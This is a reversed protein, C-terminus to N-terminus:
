KQVRIDILSDSTINAEQFTGMHNMMEMAADIIHFALACGTGEGLRMKLNLIPELGLEKMIFEYGPEASAHSPILYAKVQPNIKYAILAAAASIFGDIVIPIRYFGAGLFCGTLGAIDLGGVKSLIDLPDKSNPKNIDLARQIVQKKHAFSAETLGAGKGVALDCSCGTLAMLIASSSSTNGIGMEGTGLIHYGNDALESVIDIGVGIANVAEERSMAPGKAMNSTGKRVKKNLVGPCTFEDKIGIDVIRLEAHAHASLVNVGTMGKTFNITQLLTLEQPSASVGEEYVGNDASMVIICKKSLHNNIRGTIGSIQAAIEELRGLSGIPKVLNDIKQWAKKTTTEDLPQIGKVIEEFNM